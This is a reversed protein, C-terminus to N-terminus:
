LGNWRCYIQFKFFLLYTNCCYMVTSVYPKIFNTKHKIM